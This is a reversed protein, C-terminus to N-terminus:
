LDNKYYKRMFLFIISEIFSSGQTILCIRQLVYLQTQLVLTFCSKSAVYVYYFYCKQCRSNIKIFYVPYFKTLSVNTNPWFRCTNLILIFFEVCHIHLKRLFRLFFIAFYLPKIILPCICFPDTLVSHMRVFPFRTNSM